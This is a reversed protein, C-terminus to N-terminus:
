AGDRVRSRMAAAMSPSDKAAAMSPSHKTARMARGEKGWSGSAEVPSHWPYWARRCLPSATVVDRLSAVPTFTLDSSPPADQELRKNGQIGPCKWYNSLTRNEAGHLWAHLTSSPQRAGASHQAHDFSATLYTNISYFYLTINCVRGLFYSSACAHLRWSAPGAARVDCPPLARRCM